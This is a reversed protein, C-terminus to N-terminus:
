TTNKVTRLLCPSVQVSRLAQMKHLYMAQLLPHRLRKLFVIHQKEVPLSSDMQQAAKVAKIGQSPFPIFTPYTGEIWASYRYRYSWHKKKLRIDILEVHFNNIKM